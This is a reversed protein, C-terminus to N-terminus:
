ACGFCLLYTRLVVSLYSINRQDFPGEHGPPREALFQAGANNGASYILLNGM